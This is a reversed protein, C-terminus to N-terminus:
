SNTKIKIAENYIKKRPIGFDASIDKSLQSISSDSMKLRRRIENRVVDPAVKEKEGCGSVILTCEGKVAARKQIANFIESLPGRIFEEHIKTMERALVGNRDGLTEILEGLFREIRRNSEYFIMTRSEYVLDEIQKLRKGNKKSLFGAFVFSDTPLGAVSLATVAASPGPIPIINIGEAVAEKVLRYGPDSVSPTGANSVLALSSGKKIKKILEAACATENHEHYATLRNKINYFALLRGTKRTDEAAILDVETLVKLARITIDDRNGIPTSVLYLCGKVKCKEPEDAPLNLPM